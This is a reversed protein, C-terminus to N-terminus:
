RMVSKLDLSPCSVPDFVYIGSRRRSRVLSRAALEDYATLVTNRSVGLTRALSRSSPLRAGRKVRGSEIAFPPTARNAVLAARGSKPQGRVPGGHPDKGLAHTSLIDGRLLSTMMILPPLAVM